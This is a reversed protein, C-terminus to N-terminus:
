INSPACVYMPSGKQYASDIIPINLINIGERGFLAVNQQVLVLGFVVGLIGSVLLSGFSECGYSYRFMFLAIVFICSMTMAINTRLQIDGGLAKIEKNFHQMAGIMYTLISTLFFMTPSPFMSPIGFKELISVRMSNAYTFGNFCVSNTIPLAGIPIISGIIMALVRQSLMVEFMTFLLVSYSKCMSIIALVAVGFVFSDPLIRISESIIAFGSAVISDYLEVINFPM